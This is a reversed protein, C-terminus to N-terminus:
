FFDVYREREWDSVHRSYEIWEMRKLRVFEDALETGLASKVVEDQDLADLAQALNQPLLQIGRAAIQEPTWEYLNENIPAGPELKRHIGDM